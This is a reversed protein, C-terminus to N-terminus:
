QLVFNVPITFSVKVAKNGQRGPKWDPMAEVVRVAEKDLSADVGRAVKVNEIKGKANVVFSIYVRGQIGNEQAIVPYKVSQAIYKNLEAPGGPFLPMDEVIFFVAAEEVEEEKEVEIPAVYEVQTNQDSETDALVLEDDVNANDEVINLVDMVQPPPPPPLVPKVEQTTIPMIEEEGADESIAYQDSKTADSSAWEFAVLVLALAIVLGIQMFISKKNELDAKPSKKIEM